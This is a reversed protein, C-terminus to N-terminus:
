HNYLDVTMERGLKFLLLYVLLWVVVVLADVPLDSPLQVRTYRAHNTNKNNINYGNM